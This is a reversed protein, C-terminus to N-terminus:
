LNRYYSPSYRQRPTLRTSYSRQINPYPNNMSPYQINRTPNQYYMRQRRLANARQNQLQQQVGLYKTYRYKGFTEEQAYANQFIFITLIIVFIIM